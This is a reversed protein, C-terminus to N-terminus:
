EPWNTSIIPVAIIDGLYDCYFFTDKIGAVTLEQNPPLVVRSDGRSASVSEITTVSKPLPKGNLFTPAHAPAPKAKAPTSIPAHTVPRSFDGETARRITQVFDQGIPFQMLVAVAFATLGVGVAIGSTIIKWSEVKQRM